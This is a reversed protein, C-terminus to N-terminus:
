GSREWLSTESGTAGTPLEHARLERVLPDASAELAARDGIVVFRGEGLLAFHTAVRVWPAFADDTVVLTMPPLELTTRGRGLAGLFGLWWGRHRADLGGLPNDLLLLQPRLVLARALGARKQWSRGLTQPLREAMPSLGTAELVPAVRQRAAEASLREHYRLPLALNDAVTLHNFLQGGDFVLGVPPFANLPADGTVPMEVCFCCYRGRLPPMLGAAFLLLDSKGSRQPGAVVWFEGARVTWNVDSAIVQTQDRMAGFSVGHMELVPEARSANATPSAPANPTAPPNM